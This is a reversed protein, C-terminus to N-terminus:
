TSRMWCPVASSRRVHRTAVGCKYALANLISPREQFGPTRGLADKLETADLWEGEHGRLDAIKKKSNVVLGCSSSSSSTSVRTLATSPPKDPVVGQDASSEEDIQQCLLGAVGEADDEDMSLPAIWVGEPAKSRCRGIGGDVVPTFM